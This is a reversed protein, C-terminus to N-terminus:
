FPGPISDQLYELVARVLTAGDPTAVDRPIKGAQDFRRSQEESAPALRGLGCAQSVFKRLHASVPRPSLEGPEESGHALLAFGDGVSREGLDLPWPEMRRQLGQLYM